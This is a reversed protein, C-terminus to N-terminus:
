VRVVARFIKKGEDMFRREHETIVNGEFPHAELDRCVSLIKLGAEEYSALSYDFFAEDDTKQWIEGGPVLLNKYIELFRPNTLRQKVYGLKPLPNSFNLYIRGVSHEPIYKPLVEAACILFHVNKIGLLLASECAEIMVNSIKEVALFNVDPHLTAMKNVFGGKGCGIELHVPNSNSFISAYNLLKREQAALKMNKQTLDAVTLISGCATLREELHSKKHM